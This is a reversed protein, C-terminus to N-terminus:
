FLERQSCPLSSIPFTPYTCSPLTVIQPLSSPVRSWSPPLLSACSHTCQLSLKVPIQSPRARSSSPSHPKLSSATTGIFGRDKVSPPSLFLPLPNAKASSSASNTKFLFAPILLAGLKKDTSQKQHGHKKHLFPAM